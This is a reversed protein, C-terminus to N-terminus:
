KDTNGSVMLKTIKDIQNYIIELSVADKIGAKVLSELINKMVISRQMLLDLLKNFQQYVVDYQDDTLNLEHIDNDVSNMIRKILENFKVDDKPELAVDERLDVTLNKEIIRKLKKKMIHLELVHEFFLM